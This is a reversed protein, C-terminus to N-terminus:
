CAEGEKGDRGGLYAILESKRAEFRDAQLEMCVEFKRDGTVDPCMMTQVFESLEGDMRFWEGRIRFSAFGRHILQENSDHWPVAILMRLPVPCAAGLEWMRSRPNISRGIKVVDLGVAEIVYIMRRVM